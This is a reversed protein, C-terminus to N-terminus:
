DVVPLGLTDLDHYNADRLRSPIGGSFANGGLYLDSINVLRSLEAPIEGTLNNNSLILEQL